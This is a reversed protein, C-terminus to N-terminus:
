NNISNEKDKIINKVENIFLGSTIRCEPTGLMTSIVGNLVKDIDRFSWYQSNTVLVSLCKAADYDELEDSSSSKLFEDLNEHKTLQLPGNENLLTQIERKKTDNLYPGFLVMSRKISYELRLPATPLTMELLTDVRDLLARDIAAVDVSCSLIIGLQPSPDRMIQLLVYLCSETFGKTNDNSSRGSRRKIVEDVKDIVVITSIKGCKIKNLFDFLYLSSKEGLGLLETISITCAAIGADNAIANGAVSKGTGPVGRVIVHPLPRGFKAAEQFTKATRNFIGKVKSDVVIDDLSIKVNINEEKNRQFYSSIKSIIESMKSTSQHRYHVHILSKNVIFFIQRTITAAEFVIVIILIICLAIMFNKIILIKNESAFQVASFMSEVINAVMKELEESETGSKAELRRFLTEETANLYRIEEELRFKSSLIVEEITRKMKLVDNEFNFELMVEENLYRKEERSARISAVSGMGTKKIEAMSKLHEKLQNTLINDQDTRLQIRGLTRASFRKLKADRSDIERKRVVQMTQTNLETSERKTKFDVALGDIKIDNFTQEITQEVTSEFMDYNKMENLIDSYNAAHKSLHQTAALGHVFLSSVDMVPVGDLSYIKKKKVMKLDKNSVMEMADGQAFHGLVGLRFKGLFIDFYYTMPLASILESSKEPNLPSVDRFYVDTIPKKHKITELTNENLSVELIENKELHKKNNKSTTIPPTSTLEISPNLNRETVKGKKQALLADM